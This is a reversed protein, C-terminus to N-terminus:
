ELEVSHRLTLFMALASDLVVWHKHNSYLDSVIAPLRNSIHSTIRENLIHRNEFAMQQLKDIIWKHNMNIKKDKLKALGSEVNKGVSKKNFVKSRKNGESFSM